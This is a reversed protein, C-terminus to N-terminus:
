GEDIAAEPSGATITCTLETTIPSAADAVDALVQFHALVTDRRVDVTLYGHGNLQRRVQPSRGTVDAPFLPSSIAPAMLETAVLPSDPEFPREHVDILMGAHYDGTLVVPNDIAALQQIFRHRATPYGDWTDLYYAAGDADNGGDVGGLVVPNGVLNWTATSAASVEGFWTEQDAGLLTRDDLREGCDGFDDADPDGDRCPPLDSYQRQDLLYIRALDGVDLHRHVTAQSGDPPDMRVPLHEWWAQYGAAKRPRAAEPSVPVTRLTDGSYNNAVEHDDWTLVFPFRHHATRLDEDLKYSAYRLRYDTLSQLDHTPLTSREGEGTGAYEYIYDGLHLVLDVDEDLLHRYAAYYGTEFWQCNVVALGFRDPSGDPLTRTRGVLSTHGGVAFKYYYDSGPQLGDVDVHVAHAHAPEANAVGTRVVDTFAADTAVEWVVDVPDAPMGGLGDAALPDPALRTWLIVSDPLPDGSAVGLTFPDGSLDPPPRTTTTAGATTTTDGGAGDDDSCGALGVVLLAASGVLLQRRTIDTPADIDDGVATLM